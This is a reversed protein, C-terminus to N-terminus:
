RGMRRDKQRPRYVERMYWAQYARICIRCQPGKTPDHYTNEPTMPHRCDFRKM